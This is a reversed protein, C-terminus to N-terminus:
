KRKKGGSRKKPPTPKKGAEYQFRAMMKTGAGPVDTVVFRAESNGIPAVGTAFINGGFDGTETLNMDARNTSFVRAEVDLREVLALRESGGDTGLVYFREGYYQPSAMQVSVQRDSANESLAVNPLDKKLEEIIALKEFEQAQVLISGDARLFM